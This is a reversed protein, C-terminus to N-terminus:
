WVNGDRLSVARGQGGRGGHGDFIGTLFGLEHLDQAAIRDDNREQLFVAHM